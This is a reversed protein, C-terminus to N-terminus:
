RIDYQKRQCYVRTCAHSSNNKPIIKVWTRQNNNIFVQHLASSNSNELPVSFESSRVDLFLQYEIHRIKNTNFYWGKTLIKNLGLFDIGSLLWSNKLFLVYGRLRLLNYNQLHQRRFYCFYSQGQFM